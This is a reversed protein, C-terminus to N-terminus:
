SGQEKQWKKLATYYDHKRCTLRHATEYDKGYRTMLEYELREHHVLIIDHEQVNEGLLIRQISQAMEYSPDFRKQVGDFDYENMFIHKYVKQASKISIGSRDALKRIIPEPKSRRIEEYYREAHAERKERYPDNADNLAGLAGSSTEVTESAVLTCRCRGHFPPVSMGEAILDDKSKGEPPESPWPMAAKFEEPDEIDLTREIVKRTETVSFAKGNLEGCIPSMREDGMALIEYETIGAEVM